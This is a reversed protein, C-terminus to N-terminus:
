RRRSGPGPLYPSSPPRLRPPLPLYGVAPRAPRSLDFSWPVAEPLSLVRELLAATLSLSSAYPGRPVFPRGGHLGALWLPRESAVVLLSPRLWPVLLRPPLGEPRVGGALGRRFRGPRRLPLTHLGAERPRARARRDPHLLVAHVGPRLLFVAVHGRRSLAVTVAAPPGSAAAPGLLRVELLDSGEVAQGWLPLASAFVLAVAVAVPAIARALGRVAPFGAPAYAAVAGVVKRRNPERDRPPLRTLLEEMM